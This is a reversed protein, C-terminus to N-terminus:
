LSFSFEGEQKKFGAPVQFVPPEIAVRQVEGLQITRVKREVAGAAADDDEEDTSEATGV